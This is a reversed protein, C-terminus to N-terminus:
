RLRNGPLTITIRLGGGDANDATVKGNHLSIARATVALGIGTGEASTHGADLRGARYFPEFIRHLEADPVGPGYDRITLTILESAADVTLKIEIPSREGAHIQANRVVNDIAAHVLQVDADILVSENPHDFTLSDAPRQSEFRADYAIQRILETLDVEEFSMTAPDRDLRAYELVQDILRDLRAAEREIRALQETTTAPDQRALGLAMQLRALPSRLEHSIDRLLRQRAAIVASLRESMADFERGLIGIEDGRAVVVAPVRSNLRGSSLKRATQQLQQVPTSISRALLYSILGSIGLALTLLMARVPLSFPPSFPGRRPPPHFLVFYSTGDTAYIRAREPHRGFGPAEHPPPGGFGPPPPPPGRPPHPLAQGLIERDYVDVIFTRQEKQTLNRQILWRRLAPLGEFRLVEEAERTVAAVYDTDALFNLATVGAAGTAILVIAAWFSVFVRTFL